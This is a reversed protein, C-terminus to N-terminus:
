SIEAAMNENVASISNQFTTLDIGNIDYTNDYAFELATVAAVLADLLGNVIGVSRTPHGIHQCSNFWKKRRDNQEEFFDAFIPAYTGGYSEAFLQRSLARSM